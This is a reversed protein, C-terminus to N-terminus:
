FPIALRRSWRRGFLTVAVQTLPSRHDRTLAVGCTRWYLWWHRSPNSRSGARDIM